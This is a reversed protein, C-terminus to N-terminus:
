AIWGLERAKDNALRWAQSLFEDSTLVANPDYSVPPMKTALHESRSKFYTVSYISDPLTVIIEGSTGRPSTHQM